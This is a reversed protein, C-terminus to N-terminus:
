AAIKFRALASMDPEAGWGPGDPLQLLGNTVVVPSTLIEDRWPAGEVEYEMITLNPLLSAFQARM